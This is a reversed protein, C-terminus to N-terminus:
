QPCCVSLGAPELFVDDADKRSVEQIEKERSFTAVLDRTFDDHSEVSNDLNFSHELEKIFGLGGGVEGVCKSNQLYNEVNKDQDVPIGTNVEGDTEVNTEVCVGPHILYTQLASFTM